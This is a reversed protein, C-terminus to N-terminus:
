FWHGKLPFLQQVLPRGVAPSASCFGVTESSPPKTLNQKNLPVVEVGDLTCYCPNAKKYRAFNLKARLV